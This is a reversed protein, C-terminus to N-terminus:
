KVSLLEVEFVLVSNPPIPGTGQPGYALDSPVFLQWKSGEKMLQLAETWGRIVGNVKFTVPAGRKYSSDFETGDILNGKYNVSVQDTAAPTKGTGESLVKYQLGSALTKVGNKAKNAELFAKGEAQNKEGHAKLEKQRAAAMRQQVGTVTSDMEERTMLTKGDGLADKIGVSYVDLNLDLGQGKLYRGFQYGLSYSEKDKQDKLEAKDAAYCIGSFLALTLVSAVIYKM